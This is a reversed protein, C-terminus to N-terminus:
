GSPVSKNHNHLKVKSKEKDLLMKSKNQPMHRM